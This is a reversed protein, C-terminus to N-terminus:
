VPYHELSSILILCCDNLLMYVWFCTHCDLMHHRSQNLGMELNIFQLFQQCFISVSTDFVLGSSIWSMKLILRFYVTVRLDYERTEFDNDNPYTHDFKEHKSLVLEWYPEYRRTADQRHYDGL